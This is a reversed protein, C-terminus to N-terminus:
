HVEKLLRDDKLSYVVNGYEHTVLYKCGMSKLDKTVSRHPHHFENDKGCSFVTLEPRIKKLFEHSNSDSSGHHGSDYISIDKPVLDLNMMEVDIGADGTDLYINEGLTFTSIISTDNISGGNYTENIIRIEGEGVAYTDNMHAFRVEYQGKSRNELLLRYFTSTPTNEESLRPIVITDVGFTKIIDLVDSTHDYHFHTLVLVKIRDVGRESLYSVIDTPSGEAKGADILAFEGKSEILTCSAQGVNLITVTGDYSVEGPVPEGSPILGYRYAAFGAAAGIFLLLLM